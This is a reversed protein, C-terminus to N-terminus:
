KRCKSKMNYYKIKYAKITALSLWQIFQYVIFIHSLLETFCFARSELLYVNLKLFIKPSSMYRGDIGVM